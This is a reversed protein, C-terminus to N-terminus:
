EKKELLYYVTRRPINLQKAIQTIPVGQNKLQVIRKM